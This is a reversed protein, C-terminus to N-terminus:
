SKFKVHGGALWRRHGHIMGHAKKEAMAAAALFDITFYMIINVLQNVAGTADSEGM